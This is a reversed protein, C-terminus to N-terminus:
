WIIVFASSHFTTTDAAFLSKRLAEDNEIAVELYKRSAAVSEMM